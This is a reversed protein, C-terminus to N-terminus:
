NKGAVLKQSHLKDITDEAKRERVTNLHIKSEAIVGERLYYDRLKKAYIEIRPELKPVIVDRHAGQVMHIGPPPGLPFDTGEDVL